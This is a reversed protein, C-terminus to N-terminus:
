ADVGALIWARLSDRLVLRRGGLRTTRVSGAAIARDITRVSVGVAQAAAARSMVEPQDALISPCYDSM